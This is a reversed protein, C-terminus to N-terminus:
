TIKNVASNLKTNLTNGVNNFVVTLATVLLAAGIVYEVVTLGEDESWFAKLTEVIKMIIVM